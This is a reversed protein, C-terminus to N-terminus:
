PQPELVPALAELTAELIGAADAEARARAKGGITELAETQGVLKGVLMALTEENTIKYPAVGHVTLGSPQSKAEYVDVEFGRM